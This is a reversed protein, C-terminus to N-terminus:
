PPAAAQKDSGSLPRLVTQLAREAIRKGMAEGDDTSFRFHAGAFIRSQSVSKVYENFRSFTFSVGPVARSKFRLDRPPREGFESALITGTARAAICHACPYEPHNPTELFPEWEPSPQTASNRDEAARRIASIPRWFNFRRKAEAVAVLADDLTMHLLTYLRANAVLSRGPTEALIRIPPWISPQAWFQALASQGATRDRAGKGGLRRVEEYDQAWRKSTLSPPGPPREADVTPLIWLRGGQDLPRFFSPVKPDWTGIANTSMGTSVVRRSGSRNAELVARASALGIRQGMERSAQDSVKGVAFALATDLQRAQAPVAAMLISHAAVATAANQSADGAGPPLRLYSAYKRDIANVAEFMALAVLVRVGHGESPEDGGAALVIDAVEMWDLVTDARALEPKVLLPVAATFAIAIGSKV